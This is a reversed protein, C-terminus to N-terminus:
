NRSNEGYDTIELSKSKPDYIYNKGQFSCTNHYIYKQPNDPYIGIIWLTSLLNGGRVEVSSHDNAIKFEIIFNRKILDSDINKTVLFNACDVAISNTIVQTFDYQIYSILIDQISNVFTM